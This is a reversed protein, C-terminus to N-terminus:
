SFEIFCCYCCLYFWVLDFGVATVTYSFCLAKMTKKLRLGGFYSRPNNYVQGKGESFKAAHIGVVVLVLWVLDLSVNVGSQVQYGTEGADWIKLSTSLREFPVKSLTIARPAGMSPGVIVECLKGNDMESKMITMIQGLFEFDSRFGDGLFTHYALNGDVPRLFVQDGAASPLTGFQEAMSAPVLSTPCDTELQLARTGQPEAAACGLQNSLARDCDKFSRFDLSFIRSIHQKAVQAISSLTALHLMTLFLLLVLLLLLLLLVLVLVVVVLLLLLLLCFVVVVVCM